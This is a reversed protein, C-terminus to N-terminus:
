DPPSARRARRPKPAPPAAVPEPVVPTAAEVRRLVALPGVCLPDGEAADLEVTEGPWIHQGSRVVVGRLVEYQASAM